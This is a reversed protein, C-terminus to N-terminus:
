RMEPSIGFQVMFAYEDLTQPLRAGADGAAIIRGLSAILWAATEALNIIQGHHLQYRQELQEVSVEGSWDSLLFVAKLIACSRFDLPERGVAAAVFPTIEGSYEAFQQHRIKEYLRSRYESPMLGCRSIDFEAGFLALSLWGVITEPHSKELFAKYRRYTAVTLGCRAVARGVAGPRLDESILGLSALEALCRNLRAADVKGKQRSLLTRSLVRELDDKESILGSALLELLIDESSYRELSSAVRTDKRTDIYNSWLVEHEFDSGALIVARGPKGTEGLGFRGARGTINQFEPPTIPVLVARGGCNGPSYKMTELLVMEAPLNVGMALTTTSFIVRVEGSMYGQEVAQRQAPTLDANHFAVGRSLTQRLSRVLFSPEEGDLENLTTRAEEWNVAAALKFAAHLTDRRSKLFILKRNSDKKLFQILSEALDERDDPLDFKERGELGSNFSRFHFYGGSAIGQLLDVPRNLERIVRCNLWDALETEDDLVASLAVIRPCHGSCIIKTLAMELEPGREPDGIMQLEDVVVLGVQQLIDLNVTLLRNFKEYIALALDFKGSEFDHDNEPHDGTIIVARIGISRYCDRFYRYKEEAISKLPLLMVAKKRQLLAAIAAMEGCFSKGASTPASILLNSCPNEENGKLLGARIAKEQLPLLYDGQRHSWSNIILEPIEFKTLDKLRM